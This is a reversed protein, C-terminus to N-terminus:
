HIGCYYLLPILSIELNRCFWDLFFWFFLVLFFLVLFGLLVLLFFLIEPSKSFQWKIELIGSINNKKTRKTNNKKKKQNQKKTKEQIPKQPNRFPSGKPLRLSRGNFLSIIRQVIINQSIHLFAATSNSGRVKREYRPFCCRSSCLVKAVCAPFKYPCWDM